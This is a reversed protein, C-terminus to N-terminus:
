PTPKRPLKYHKQSFRESHARMEAKRLRDSARNLINNLQRTVQGMGVVLRELEEFDKPTMLWRRKGCLMLRARNKM